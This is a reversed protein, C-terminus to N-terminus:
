NILCISCVFYEHYCALLIRNKITNSRNSTLWGSSNWYQSIQSQPIQFIQQLTRIMFRTLILSFIHWWHYILQWKNIKLNKKSLQIKNVYRLRIQAVCVWRIKAKSKQLFVLISSWSFSFSVLKKKDIHDTTIVTDRHDNQKWKWCFVCVFAWNVWFSFCVCLIIVCCQVKIIM